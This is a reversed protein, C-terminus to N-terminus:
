KMGRHRALIRALAEEHDKATITRGSQGQHSRYLFLPEHLVEFKCGADKCSEWFDLDFYPGNWFGSTKAWASRRTLSTVWPKWARAVRTNDGFWQLDTYVVDAGTQRMIESTKELYAPKLRDDDCLILFADSDSHELVFNLRSGLPDVSCVFDAHPMRVREWEPGVNGIIVVKNPQLTQDALSDLADNLFARRDHTPVIVLLKM